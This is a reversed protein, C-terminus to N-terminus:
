NGQEVCSAASATIANSPNRPTSMPNNSPRGNSDQLRSSDFGCLVARASFPFQRRVTQYGRINKRLEMCVERLERHIMGLRCAAPKGAVLKQPRQIIGGGGTRFVDRNQRAHSKFVFRACLGSARLASSSAHRTSAPLRWSNLQGDLRM